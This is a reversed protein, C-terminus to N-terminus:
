ELNKFGDAKAEESSEYVKDNLDEQTKLIKYTEISQNFFDTKSDTSFLKAGINEDTTFVRQITFDIGKYNRQCFEIKKVEEAAQENFNALISELLANDNSSLTPCETLQQCRALAQLFRVEIWLRHYILGYESMLKSLERTKSFYRGDIPSIATLQTNM